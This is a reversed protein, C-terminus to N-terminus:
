DTTHICLAVVRVDYMCHLIYTRQACVWVCAVWVVCVFTCVCLSLCMCVCVCVCACVCVHVCAHHMHVCVGCAVM